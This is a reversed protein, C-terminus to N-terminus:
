HSAGVPEEGNVDNIAQELFAVGDSADYPRKVFPLVEFFEKGLILEFDSDHLIDSRHPVSKEM